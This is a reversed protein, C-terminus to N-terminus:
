LSQQSSTCQRQYKKGRGPVDIRGKGEGKEERMHRERGQDEGSQGQATYPLAKMSNWVTMTVLTKSAIRMAKEAPSLKSDTKLEL